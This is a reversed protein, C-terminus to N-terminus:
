DSTLQIDAFWFEQGVTKALNGLNIRMLNDSEPFMFLLEHKTWETTLEPYIEATHHEFPAHNQMIVVAIEVPQDAKAWFTLVYNKEAVVPIPRYAQIHWGYIDTSDIEGITIKLANGGDPGEAVV